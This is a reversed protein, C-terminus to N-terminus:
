TILIMRDISFSRTRIERNTFFNYSINYYKHSFIYKFLNTTTYSIKEHDSGRRCTMLISLPFPKIAVFISLGLLLMCASLVIVINYNSHLDPLFM